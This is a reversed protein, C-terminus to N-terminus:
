RTALATAGHVPLDNRTRSRSRNRRRVRWGGAAREDGVGRQRGGRGGGIKQFAQARGALDLPYNDFRLRVPTELKTRCSPARVHRALPLVTGLHWRRVAERQATGDANTSLCARRPAPRPWSMGSPVDRRLQALVEPPHRGWGSIAALRRIRHPRRAMPGDPKATTEVLMAKGRPAARHRGEADQWRTTRAATAATRRYPWCSRSRGPWKTRSRGSSRRASVRPQCTLGHEDPRHRHLTPRPEIGLPRVCGASVPLNWTTSTSFARLRDRARDLVSPDHSGEWHWSSCPILRVSAM